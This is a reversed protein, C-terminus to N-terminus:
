MLVSRALSLSHPLRTSVMLPIPYLIPPVSQHGFPYKCTYYQNGENRHKCAGSKHHADHVIIESFLYVVLQSVFGLHDLNGNFILTNFIQLSHSFRAVDVATYRQYFAAAFDEEVAFGIRVLHGTVNLSFFYFLSKRVTLSISYSM